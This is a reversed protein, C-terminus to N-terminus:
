QAVPTLTRPCHEAVLAKSAPPGAHLKHCAVTLGTRAAELEAVAKIVAKDTTNVAQLYVVRNVIVVFATLVMAALGLLASRLVHWEPPDTDTGVVFRTLKDIKAVFFGSFILAVTAGIQGYVKSDVNDFPVWFVALVCGAICGLLVALLNSVIGEEWPASKPHRGAHVLFAFLPLLVLGVSNTVVLAVPPGKGQWLETSLRESFLLYLFAGGASVAAVLSVWLLWTARSAM